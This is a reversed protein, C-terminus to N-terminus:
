EYHRKLWNAIKMRLPHAMIGRKRAHSFIEPTLTEYYDVVFSKKPQAKKSKLLCDEKALEFFQRNKKTTMPLVVWMADRKCWSVVPRFKNDKKSDSGFRLDSQRVNYCVGDIFDPISDVSNIKKWYKYMIVGWM